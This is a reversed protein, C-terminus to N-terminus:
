SREIALAASLALRRFRDVFQRGTPSQCSQVLCTGSFRARSAGKDTEAHLVVPQCPTASPARQSGRTRRDPRRGGSGPPGPWFDLDGLLEPEVHRLSLAISPMTFTLVQPGRGRWCSPASKTVTRPIAALIMNM